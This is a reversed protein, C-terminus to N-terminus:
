VVSKRDQGKQQDHQAHGVGGGGQAGGEPGEGAAPCLMASTLAAMFGPCPPVPTSGPASPDEQETGVADWHQAAQAEPQQQRTPRPAPPHQAPPAHPVVVQSDQPCSSGLAPGGGSVYPCAEGAQMPGAQVAACQAHQLRSPVSAQEARDGVGGGAEPQCAPPEAAISSAAAARNAPAGVPVGCVPPAAAQGRGLPLGQRVEGGRAGQGQDDPVSRGPPPMELLQSVPQLHQLLAPSPPMGGQGAGGVGGAECRVFQQLLQAMAPDTPLEALVDEISPGLTPDGDGPPFSPGAVGDGEGPPPHNMATTIHQALGSAFRNQLEDDCLLSMLADEDLPMNLLDMPRLSGGDLGLMGMNSDGGDSMFSPLAVAELSPAGDGQCQQQTPSGGAPAAGGQWGFCADASPQNFSDELKRRKRPAGKRQAHRGPTSQQGAQEGAPQAPLPVSQQQPAATPFERDAAQAPDSAPRSRLECRSKEQQQAASLPPQAQPAQYFAPPLCQPAPLGAHFDLLSYLSQAVPNLSQLSQRRSDREKVSVYENLLESLNKVGAPLAHAASGLILRAERRFTQSTKKWGSIDLYNLVLVALEFSTVFTNISDDMNIHQNPILTASQGPLCSSSFNALQVPM